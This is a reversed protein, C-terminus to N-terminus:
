AGAVLAAPMAMFDDCKFCPVPQRSDWRTFHHICGRCDLGSGGVKFNVCRQATARPCVKVHACKSCDTEVEVDANFHLERNPGSGYLWHTMM